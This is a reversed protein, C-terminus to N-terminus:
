GFFLARNGLMDFKEAFVIEKEFLSNMEKPKSSILLLIEMIKERIFKLYLSSSM